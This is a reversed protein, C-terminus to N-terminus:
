GITQCTGGQQEIAKRAKDSFAHAVVDVKVALAGDGLIKVPSRVSRILGKERLVKPTIRSGEQFANLAGLNVVSYVTKFRKRNFGKKPLRRYLPMQGGEFGRSGEKGSRSKQGKHGRGCMKGRGSGPGRGKRRVRKRAGPKNTLESLTM